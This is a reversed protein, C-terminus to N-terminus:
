RHRVIRFRDKTPANKGRRLLASLNVMKYDTRRVSPSYVSRLAHSGYVEVSDAFSSKSDVFTLFSSYISGVIQATRVAHTSANSNLLGFSRVNGNLWGWSNMKPLSALMSPHPTGFSFSSASDSNAGDCNTCGQEFLVEQDLTGTNNLTYRVCVRRYSEIRNDRCNDICVTDSSAVGDNPPNTAQCDRNAFMWWEWDCFDSASGSEDSMLMDSSTDPEFFRFEIRAEQIPITSLFEVSIKPEQEVTEAITPTFPIFFIVALSLAAWITSRINYNM